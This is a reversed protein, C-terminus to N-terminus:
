RALRLVSMNMQITVSANTEGARRIARTLTVALYTRARTQIRLAAAGSIIANVLPADATAAAGILVSFSGAGSGMASLLGLSVILGFGSGMFPTIASGLALIVLGGVLVARPGFRDAVAGAVPQIAGWTFQGIALALSITAISLGATNLPQVLLGFSQRIGMTVTMIAAASLVLSQAVLVGLALMAAALGLAALIAGLMVPRRGFRDSLAGHWLTMAAFAALYASLTQQVEIPTAGLKDGIEPFSPLYTDISFPGLAGMAALLTALRPPAVLHPLAAQTLVVLMVGAVCVAGIALLSSVEFPFLVPEPGAVTGAYPM